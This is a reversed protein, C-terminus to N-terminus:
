GQLILSERAMAIAGDKTQNGGIFGTAHVFVCGDIGSVKSLEEGRLGRWPTAIPARSDFSQQTLPVSQIRWDSKDGFIVYQIEGEIGREKEIDFLHSKWPCFDNLIAIAGSSEVEKRSDVMKEVFSRAPLWSQVINEVCELFEKGTLSMALKFQEDPKKGVENWGPNLRGVRSGLDTHIAYRPPATTDYQNVGNDLADVAQIFDDYIKHYIVDLTAGEIGTLKELIQRGFHKYVLGASSLRISHNGDFFDTFTIQHHDYRHNSPDYVAGVDVLCDLTDLVEPKRTRIIEADKFELTQHLM